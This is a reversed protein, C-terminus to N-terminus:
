RGVVEEAAYGTLVSFAPNVAVIRDDADTVLIGESSSQYVHGALQLREESQRRLIAVSALDGALGLLATLPADSRALARRLYVSLVGLVKGKPSLLPLAWLAGYGAQRAARVRASRQAHPGLHDIMVAECRRVALAAPCDEAAGDPAALAERLTQPLAAAGTLVLRGHAADLVFIALHCDPREYEVSEAIVGLLQALPAGHALMELVRGRAGERRALNKREGIDRASMYLLGEGDLTVRTAHIEVEVPTGDRNRWEAEFVHGQPRGPALMERLELLSFGIDWQSPHMALLAERTHGLMRCMAHNVDRVRATRDLILMGDGATRLLAANRAGEAALQAQIRRRESIDHVTSRSRNYNGAADRIATANLSVELRSGDKRVMVLELDSLEGSERLRRFGSEYAARSEPALLDYTRLRGAVEERAYGLWRLETDNIRVILGEADVSHYGCPANQYLDEIEEAYRALTDAIGRRESIDQLQAIYYQPTRETARVLSVTLLVWVPSGDKRLYRKEVAFSQATGDQLRRRQLASVAADDPHTLDFLSLRALESRRYGLLQSLAHNAERCRGDMGVVAMGIPAQEFVSRLLADLSM